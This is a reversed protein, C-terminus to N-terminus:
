SILHARGDAVPWFVAPAVGAGGGDVDRHRGFISSEASRAEERGECGRPM